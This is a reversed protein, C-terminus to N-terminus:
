WVVCAALGMLIILSAGCVDKVIAMAKLKNM